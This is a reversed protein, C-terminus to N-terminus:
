ALNSDSSIIKEVLLIMDNEILDPRRFLPHYPAGSRDIYGALLGAAMAGHTDWDHTAILRLESTPRKLRDAAYAYVKPDPKFSGVEEVSIIEDLRETLGANSIQRGVLDSSSNTFAVTRYGAHQLRRLSPEVDAYPRLNAFTSLIEDRQVGTLVVGRRAAFADLMAGALAAFGTKVGTLACVTSNHLLMAFWTQAAYPESFAVEFKARLASLDLVTENIDFLITDRAM